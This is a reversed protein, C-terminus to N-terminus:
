PSDSNNTATVLLCSFWIPMSALTHTHTDSKQLNASPHSIALIIIAWWWTTDFLRNDAPWNSQSGMQQIKISAILEVYVIRLQPRMLRSNFCRLFLSISFKSWSEEVDFSLKISLELCGGAWSCSVIKSIARQTFCICNRKGICNLKICHPLLVCVLTRVCANAHCQNSVELEWVSGFFSLHCATQCCSTHLVSIIINGFSM